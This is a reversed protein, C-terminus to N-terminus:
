FMLHRTYSLYRWGGPQALCRMHYRWAPGRQGSILQQNSLFHFAASLKHRLANRIRPPNDFDLLFEIFSVLSRQYEASKSLSDPTDHIRFTPVDLFQIKHGAFAIRFAILTWEFYKTVGDFYDVTIASTRFLGGCSALWNEKIVASLSDQNVADVNYVRLGDSMDGNTAVVDLDADKLMPALRMQLAGPYYEDDDDLFCFFDQTVFTRGFRLAAPLSGEEQYCVRLERRGRLEVFFGEDYRNGNVVIIPEVDVGEQSLVSDIARSLSACRSPECTTPIIVAISM